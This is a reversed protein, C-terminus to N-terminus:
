DELLIELQNKKKVPKAEAIKAIEAMVTDPTVGLVIDDNVLMNPGFECGGLCSSRDFDYKSNSEGMALGTSDEIAKIVGLAGRDVCSCDECARVIIKKKAKSM